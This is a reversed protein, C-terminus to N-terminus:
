EAPMTPAATPWVHGDYSAKSNWYLGLPLKVPMHMPVLAVAAFPVATMRWVQAILAVTPFYTRNRAVDRTLLRYRRVAAHARHLLGLAPIAEPRGAQPLWSRRARWSLRRTRYRRAGSTMLPCPTM